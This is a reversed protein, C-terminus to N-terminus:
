MQYKPNLLESSQLASSPQKYFASQGAATMLPKQASNALKSISHQLGWRDPVASPHNAYSFLFIQQTYGDPLM